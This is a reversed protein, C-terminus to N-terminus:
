KVAIQNVLKAKIEPRNASEEIVVDAIPSSPQYGYQRGANFFPEFLVAIRAFDDFHILSM